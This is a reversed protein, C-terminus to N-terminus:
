SALKKGPLLKELKRRARHVKVRLANTTLKLERALEDRDQTHYRVLVDREEPVLHRLCQQLYIRAEVERFDASGTGALEDVDISSDDVSPPANRQESVINRAIGLFYHSPNSTYIDAGAAIRKFGRRLTEQALDEPSRCNRWSFFKKLRFFLDALKDAARDPDPDFVRLLQEHGPM